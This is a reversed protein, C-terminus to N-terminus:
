SVRLVGSFFQAGRVRWSLSSLSIVSEFGIGPVGDRPLLSNTEGLTAVHGLLRETENEGLNAKM